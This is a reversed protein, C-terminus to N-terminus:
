GRPAGDTVTPPAPEAVRELADAGVLAAAPTPAPEGVFDFLAGDAVDRVASRLELLRDAADIAPRGDDRLLAARTGAELRAFDIRARRRRIVVEIRRLTPEPHTPDLVIGTEPELLRRAQDLTVGEVVAIRYLGPYSDPTNGALVWERLSEHPGWRAPSAKVAIVAGPLLDGAARTLIQIEVTM